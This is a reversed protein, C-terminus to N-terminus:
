AEVSRLRATQSAICLLAGDPTWLYSTASAFGTAVSEVRHEVLIWESDEREVVRLTNDLSNGGLTEGLVRSVGTMMTDAVLALKLSSWREGLEPARMWYAARGSEAPDSPIEPERMDLRVAATGEVAYWRDVDPCEDPAPVRPPHVWRGETAFAREGLSAQVRLIERDTTGVLARAQSLQHGRVTETVEIALPTGVGAYSLFQAAAWVPPRGTRREISVLGLAIGCGGYIFDHSTCIGPGAVMAIPGDGSLDDPLGLFAEPTIPGAMSGVIPTM